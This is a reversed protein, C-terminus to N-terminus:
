RRKSFCSSPPSCTSARCRRPKLDARVRKRIAPLARAFDVMQGYKADNRANPGSPTIAISNAGGRTADPRRFIDTPALLM